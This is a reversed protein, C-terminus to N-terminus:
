ALREILAAALLPFMLEHHGIFYFGQGGEATPRNVINVQPRYHRIFDMNITTMDKLVCGLNRALTVAKLFVEPIIVASGLNIFVGGELTAVAACFTHFDTLSGKGLAAGDAEPHVHYVDTGLAVHVCVPIDLRAASAFLSDGEYPFGNQIISAGLAQGLGIGKRAAEIAAANILGNAERSMGFTGDGLSASVDESTAGVMAAETDHVMVSGNVALLSIVGRKMLDIILPSLGVKVPHGGLALIITRGDRVARALRDVARNFDGGALINPLCSLFDNLGGGKTWPRAFDKRTVKSARENISYTKLDGLELPPFNKM